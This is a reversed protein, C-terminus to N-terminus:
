QLVKEYVRLTEEAANRWSYLSLRKRGKAVIEKRKKPNDLVKEISNQISKLDEPDFYVAGEGLIEPMSSRNSSVAPCDFSLAELPPLGFGEYLSPFVYCEAQKYFEALEDDTVFGTLHVNKIQNEKIFKELRNYFYDRGGVLVLNLDKRQKKLL